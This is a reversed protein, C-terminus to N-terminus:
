PCPRNCAINGDKCFTLKGPCVMNCLGSKCLALCEAGEACEVTCALAGGCDIECTSGAACSNRCTSTDACGMQCTSAGSCALSCQVSSVCDVSCSASGKCAASCLSSGQECSVHCSAQDRCVPACHLSTCALECADSGACEHSCMSQEPGCSQLVPMDDAGEGADGGSQHGGDLPDTNPAADRQQGGDEEARDDHRQPPEIAPSEDHRARESPVGDYGILVCASQSTLWLIWGHSLLNRGRIGAFHAM